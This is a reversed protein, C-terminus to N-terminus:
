MGSARHERPKQEGKCQRKLGPTLTLTCFSDDRCAAAGDCEQGGSGCEHLPGWWCRRALDCLAPRCPRRRGLSACARSPRPAPRACTAFASPPRSLAIISRARGARTGPLAPLPPSPTRRARYSRPRGAVPRRPPPTSRAACPRRARGARSRGRPEQPGSPSSPKSSSVRLLTPATARSPAPSRPPRGPRRPRPGTQLLGRGGRASFERLSPPPPVRLAMLPTPGHDQSMYRMKSRFFGSTSGSPSRPTRLPACRKKPTLPGHCSRHGSVGLRIDRRAPPDLSSFRRGRPRSSAFFAAQARRVGTYVTERRTM